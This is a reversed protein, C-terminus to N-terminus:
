EAEWLEDIYTSCDAPRAAWEQLAGALLDVSVYDLVFGSPNITDDLHEQSYGILDLFALYPTGRQYDYNTSWEALGAINECYSPAEEIVEHFQKIM